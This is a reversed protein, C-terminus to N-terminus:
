GHSPAAQDFLECQRATLTEALFSRRFLDDNRQPQTAAPFGALALDFFRHIEACAASRSSDPGFAAMVSCNLEALLGALYSDRFVVSLMPKGSLYCPYLKSPSYAPDSTGLVLIADTELLVGLSELYGLRHTEEFVADDVGCAQAVPIVSPRGAGAAAYSTGLFHFRFRTAAPVRDRYARLASFLVELSQRMIPGAAGTYVVRIEDPGRDGAPKRRALTRAFAFDSAAAGFGITAQPKAAFWPYRRALDSLYRASVSMFGSARRYTGQEFAAALLRALQYKKGGPPVPAGPREYYDTRWPDQIDIVFRTGFRRRWYPGLTFTIFQTTSFLVLDFTEQRQLRNGAVLLPFLARLGLSGVGLLRTWRLPWARVHVVRISPPCTALLDSERSAAVDDPHVALVVPEWGNAAYSPLSMRVRQM